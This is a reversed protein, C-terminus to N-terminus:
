SSLSVSPSPHLYPHPSQNPYPSLNPSPGAFLLPGKPVPLTSARIDRRPKEQYLLFYALLGGLPVVLLALLALLAVDSEEADVGGSPSPSPGPSPSPSNSVNSVGVISFTQVTTVLYCCVEFPVCDAVTGGESLIAIGATSGDNYRYFEPPADCGTGLRVTFSMQVNSIRNGSADWRAVYIVLSAAYHSTLPLNLSVGLTSPTSSFDSVVM